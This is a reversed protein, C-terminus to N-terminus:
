TALRVRVISTFLNEVQCQLRRVDLVHDVWQSFIYGGQQLIKVAVLEGRDNLKQSARCVKDVKM